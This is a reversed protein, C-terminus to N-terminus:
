RPSLYRALNSLLQELTEASISGILGQIASLPVSTLFSSRILGPFGLGTMGFEAHDRDIIVDLSPVFLHSKGSIACVLLDDHPVLKKLVITPRLKVKGDAQQFAVRVVRGEEM